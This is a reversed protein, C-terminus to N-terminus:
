CIHAIEGGQEVRPGLDRGVTREFVEVMFSFLSRTLAADWRGKSSEDRIFAHQAQVELFSTPVDADELTNRILDRGSRPVHTDQKGFIMVLEGKGKLDGNRVRVLTDDNKGKGLTASHIDTAFFCVSSLVRSDFAALHGGLCMGTAAIRGNCSSLSCLLDISLTADEDYAALEKEIKYKNGRDTGEADYPIPEPGEFEHFSSPCAVVYGHSAIQGAIREVPGTVQYIERAQPYNPLSPAIIFIRVPRGGSLKSPVDHYTKTILM